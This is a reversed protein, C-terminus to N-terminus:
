ASNRRDSRIEYIGFGRPWMNIREAFSSGASAENEAFPKRNIGFEGRTVTKNTLIHPRIQLLQFISIAVGPCSVLFHCRSGYHDTPFCIQVFHQTGGLGLDSLRELECGLAAFESEVLSHQQRPRIAMIQRREYGCGVFKAAALHAIRDRVDDITINIECVDTHDT